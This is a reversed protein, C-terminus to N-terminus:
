KNYSMWAELHVQGVLLIQTETFLMVRGGSEHHKTDFFRSGSAPVIVEQNPFLHMDEKQATDGTKGVGVISDKFVGGSLYYASGFKYANAYYKVESLREYYYQLDYDESWTTRKSNYTNYRGKELDYIRYM